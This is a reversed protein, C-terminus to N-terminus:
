LWPCPPTGASTGTNHLQCAWAHTVLGSHLIRQMGYRALLRNQSTQLTFLCKIKCCPSGDKVTIQGAPWLHGTKQAKCSRRSNQFFRRWLFGWFTYGLQLCSLMGAEAANRRQSPDVQLPELVRMAITGGDLRKPGGLPVTMCHSAFGRSVVNLHHHLSAWRPLHQM